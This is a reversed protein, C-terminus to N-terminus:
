AEQKKSEEKVVPKVESEKMHKMIKTLEEKSKGVAVTQVKIFTTAIKLHHAVEKIVIHPPKDSIMLQQKSDKLNKVSFIRM